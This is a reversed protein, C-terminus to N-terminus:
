KSNEKQFHPCWKNVPCYNECRKYEVPRAEVYGDEGTAHGQADIANDYLKLATKRGKKMVAFVPKTAWREENTCPPPTLRGHEELRNILFAEVEQDAWLPVPIVKVAADPYGNQGAKSMHFDRFVAVIQAGKVPFGAKQMLWAYANVQANWEPKGDAAYVTTFKFDSIIENEYLDVQGTIKYGGLPTTLREESLSQAGANREAISHGIQGMMSWIRSSADEELEDEYKDKLHRQYAPSLLTTVSITGQPRSYNDQSVAKVISAPLNHKNTIKM